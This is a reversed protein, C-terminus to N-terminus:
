GDTEGEKKCYILLYKHSINLESKQEAQPCNGNEISIVVIEKIKLDEIDKLHRILEIGMPYITGDKLRIDNCIIAIYGNNHILSGMSKSLNCFDDFYKKTICNVIVLSKRKKIFDLKHLYNTGNILFYDDSNYRKILNQITRNYWNKCYFIWVTTSELQDIEAPMFHFDEPKEVEAVCHEKATCKKFIALYEHALLLFNYKISNKYWFGTSKCNHQRKIVLEKLLFGNKLYVDILWFGLPIVHRKKRMDGILVACSGGDKLVRHNESVVKSMEKLFDNINYFSLDQKENDTYHIIDAYPSHTCILDITNDEIFSLDRADGVKFNIKPQINEGDLCRYVSFNKNKNALEIAKPNIDVGMFNRNTLKCEVGTTGAGCFCDLVLENKKSYRLIVNRPIYPSWNGRYNGNHTAWNGRSKFSWVTTKELFFNKPQLTKIERKIIPSSINIGLRKTMVKEIFRLNVNFKEGIKQNTVGCKKAKFIQDEIKNM